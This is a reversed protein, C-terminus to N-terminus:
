LLSAALAAAARDNRDAFVAALRGARAAMVEEVRGETPARQAADLAAEIDAAFRRPDIAALARAYQWHIAADGPRLATARAYHTRAADLDAGMLAAGLGGGRRIVELHWVALFGHAYPNDPMDALVAEALARAARGEASARRMPLSRAALSRSIALQLRGEVHRPDLALAAEAQERAAALLEEPPPADGCVAKALLARAAFARADATKFRTATRAAEDYRGEHFALHMADDRDDAFAPAAPAVTALLSALLLSLVM